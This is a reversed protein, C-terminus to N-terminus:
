RLGDLLRVTMENGGVDVQMVVQATAPILLEGTEGRVIYVDNSGTELIEQIIGLYEGSETLVRMGILQYHFYEGEEPEPSDDLPAYIYQGALSTAHQRTSIGTLRILGDSPGTSRFFAIQFSLNNIMLSRGPEFRGPVDSLLHIGLTGDVGHARIVRAVIVPEDSTSNHSPQPPNGM